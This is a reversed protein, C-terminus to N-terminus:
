SKNSDLIRVIVADETNAVRRISILGKCTSVLYVHKGDSKLADKYTDYLVELEDKTTRFGM